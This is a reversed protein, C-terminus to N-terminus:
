KTDKIKRIQEEKRRTESEKVNSYKNTVTVWQEKTITKKGALDMLKGGRKIVRKIVDSFSEGPLKFRSLLEYVEDSVAINKAM